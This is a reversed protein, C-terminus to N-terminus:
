APATAPPARRATMLAQTADCAATVVYGSSRLVDTVFQVFVRDDDAVLVTDTAM